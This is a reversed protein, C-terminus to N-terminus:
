RPNRELLAAEALLWERFARIKPREATAEPSVVWYAFGGPLALEFPRVLRGAALDDIVLATRGMAVGQGALAAQLMMSADGFIPGRNPNVDGAGAARLWDRWMPNPEGPNHEDHLLTHERLDSPHRLPNPGELLSPNCVPFYEEEMLRTAHLGPYRGRGYRVGMDVDARNFDVSEATAALRLDIEPHAHRFQGLRPVLWRAAFSPLVSVTLIGYRDGQMLRRTASSLEDFATRVSPLYQQGEDTLTLRRNFRRFLPMGLHEELQRIQHSVAAQTVNLEEAAKTFSLHRAAVEFTRLANLPPLRVPTVDTKRIRLMLLSRKGSFTLRAMRRLM